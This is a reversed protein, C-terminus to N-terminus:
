VAIRIAQPSQRISLLNETKILLMTSKSDSCYSRNDLILIIKTIKLVNYYSYCNEVKVTFNREGDAIRIFFDEKNAFQHFHTQM